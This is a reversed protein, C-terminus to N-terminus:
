KKSTQFLLGELKKWHGGHEIALFRIKSKEDPSVEDSRIHELVRDFVMRNLDNHDLQVRIGSYSPKTVVTV